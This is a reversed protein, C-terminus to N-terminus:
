SPLALSMMTRRHEDTRFDEQERQLQALTLEDLHVDSITAMSLEGVHRHGHQDILRRLAALSGNRDGARGDGRYGFGEVLNATISAQLGLRALLRDSAVALVDPKAGLLFNEQQRAWPKVVSNTLVYRHEDSHNVAGGHLLRGDFMLITGAPAELNIPRPLEGYLGEGPRGNARHSGPVLLTGGNHDDVDQLVYMTNVLVPAEVTHIPALWTQDQHMPQPHCGAYSINALLSFHHWGKGLWEDLLREVVLGAQVAAPDHDLLGVFVDGKNILSWVHQQSEVLYAIGLAREAAAQDAVRTRIAECQAASLGDEILCFGWESLDHRLRHLDKTPAPLDIHRWYEHRRAVTTDYYWGAGWELEVDARPPLLWTNHRFISAYPEGSRLWAAHPVIADVSGAAVGESTFEEPM